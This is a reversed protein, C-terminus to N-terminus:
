RIFKRNQVFPDWWLGLKSVEMHEPSFKGFEDHWKGFWFDTKGWIKCSVETDHFIVWKYKKPWFNYAKCPLSWDFHLNNLSKPARILIWWIRTMKSVFFQNEKLNKMVRKDLDYLTEALFYLMTYLLISYNDRMASFLSAFNLSFSAQPKLYSMLFKTLNWGVVSFDSCKVEIPQKQGFYILDSSFFESSNDKM